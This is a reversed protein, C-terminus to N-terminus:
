ILLVRPAVWLHGNITLFHKVITLLLATSKTSTSPSLLFNSKEDDCVAQSTATATLALSLALTAVSSISKMIFSLPSQPSQPPISPGKKYGLIHRKHAAHPTVGQKRCAAHPM